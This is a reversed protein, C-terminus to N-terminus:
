RAVNGPQGTSVIVGVARESRETATPQDHESRVYRLRRLTRRQQNILHLPGLRRMLGQHEFPKGKKKM